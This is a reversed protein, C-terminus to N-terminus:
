LILGDDETDEVVEVHHLKTNKVADDFAKLKAELDKVVRGFYGQITCVRLPTELKLSESAAQSMYGYCHYGVTVEPKPDEGERVITLLSTIMRGEDMKEIKDEGVWADVGVLAPQHQTVKEYNLFNTLDQQDLGHNQDSWIMSIMSIMLKVANDVKEMSLEDNSLYYAAVPRKRKSAIAQYSKITSISNVIEQRCSASGVMLVVVNRGQGLLSSVLMNGVTSGTGGSTSHVIVNVDGPKTSKILEDLQVSVAEYNEARIKGSGKALNGTIDKTHIFNKTGIVDQPVNSTSTDVMVTRLTSFGPEKSEELFYFDKCINIGAGGCAYVVVNSM